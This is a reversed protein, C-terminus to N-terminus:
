ADSEGGHDTGLYVDIVRQDHVIKEPIDEAIITGSALVAVRDCIRMTAEMVHEIMLITVDLNAQVTRLMDIQRDIDEHSLGAFVEDLLLLEPETALARAIEMRKQESMTLDRGEEDALNGLGVLELLETARKRALGVDDYGGAYLLGPLLNDRVTMGPFPRTIQFTRGVGARAIDKPDLGTIDDGNFTITGNNPRLLGSVINFFTTKGAGNPGILGQITGREVSLSIDELM